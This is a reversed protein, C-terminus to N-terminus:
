GHGRYGRGSADFDEAERGLYRKSIDRWMTLRDWIPEKSVKDGAALFPSPFFISIMPEDAGNKREFGWSIPAGDKDLRRFIEAKSPKRHAKIDEPTPSDKSGKNEGICLHFHPGDFSITMYGDFKSIRNPKCPCTLEYAAGEIIPGFIVQDWYNTFLYTLFEELFDEDLPLPWTQLARQGGDLKTVIPDKEIKVPANMAEEGVRAVRHKTAFVKDKSGRLLYHMPLMRPTLRAMSQLHDSSLAKSANCGGTDAPRNWLRISQLFAARFLLRQFVCDAFIELDFARTGLKNGGFHL